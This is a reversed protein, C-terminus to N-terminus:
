MNKLEIIDNNKIKNFELSKYKNVENGNVLFHNESESYEPYEDYLMNEIKSFKDTNKCIVSYHLKQDLPVFIVSILQEGESLKIPYNSIINDKIRIEELLQNYKEKNINNNLNNNLFRLKESLENIINKDENNINQKGKINIIKELEQIGKSLDKNNNKEINLENSLEFIKNKLIEDDSKNNNLSFNHRTFNVFTKSEYQFYYYNFLLLILVDQFKLLYFLYSICLVIINIIFYIKM